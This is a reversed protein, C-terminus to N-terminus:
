KLAVCREAMWILNGYEDEPFYERFHLYIRDEQTEIPVRLTGIRHDFLITEGSGTEKLSNKGWLLYQDDPPSFVDSLEERKFDDIEYKQESILAAKGTNKSGERFWRLEYEECFCRLEFIDADCLGQKDAPFVFSGNEFRAFCCYNPSYVLLFPKGPIDAVKNLATKADIENCFARYLIPSDTVTPM